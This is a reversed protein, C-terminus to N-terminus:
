CVCFFFSVTTIPLGRTTCVAPPWPMRTEIGVTARRQRTAGRSNPSYAAAGNQTVDTDHELCIRLDHVKLSPLRELSKGYAFSPAIRRFNSDLHDLKYASASGCM